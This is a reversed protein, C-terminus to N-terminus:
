LHYHQVKAIKAVGLCVTLHNEEEKNVKTM